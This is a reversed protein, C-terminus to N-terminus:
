FLYISIPGPNASAEMEQSVNWEDSGNGVTCQYKTTLFIIPSAQSLEVAQVQSGTPVAVDTSIFKITLRQGDPVTTVVASAWQNGDTIALFGSYTVPTKGTIVKVPVPSNAGNGIQVAPLSSVQVAPISSVQVAPVSNVNVNWTGSQATPVPQAASNVVIVNQTGGGSAPRPLGGQHGATALATVGAAGFLLASLRPM